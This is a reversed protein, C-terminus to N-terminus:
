SIGHKARHHRKVNDPRGKYPCGEEPCQLLSKSIMEPSSHYKLDHRSREKVEAFGLPTGDKNTCGLECKVPRTHNRQHKKLDCPRKFISGCVKGHLDKMYCAHYKASTNPDM